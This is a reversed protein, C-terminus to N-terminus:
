AMVKKKALIKDTEAKIIEWHMRVLKQVTADELNLKYLRAKGINRTKKVVNMKEMDKWVRSFSTWGVNANKAIETMSYDFDKGEILFDLIRVLPTNGFYRAFITPEEMSMNSM